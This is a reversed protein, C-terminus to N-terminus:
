KNIEERLKDKQKQVNKRHEEGGPGPTQFSTVREVGMEVLNELMTGIKVWPVSILFLGPPFINLAKMGLGLGTIVYNMEGSLVPYNYIWACACVPTYKSSIVEGTSYNISRLLTQAQAINATIILVDPDFPLKDVPSFAVSHVSGMKMYPLYNYIARCARAEQFLAGREGFLGSVLIPEPDEFGLLMPEVCHFDGKTVYFPDGIQAEKLMECFNLAKTLHPIGEPKVPMFKVGIPKREFKFKDFISYDRLSNKM